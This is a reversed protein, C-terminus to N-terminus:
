DVIMGMTREPNDSFVGDVGLDFLECAREFNNVTYALLKRKSAKISEIKTKDLIEHNVDVSICRLQDCKIQWDPDWDHMLFGLFSGPSYERVLELVPLSFSSILLQPHKNIWHQKILELVKSVILEEKGIQPKIEINASLNFHNVLELVDGLTPVKENKFKPDFWSGADLHKFILILIIM